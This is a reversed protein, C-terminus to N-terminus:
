CQGSCPFCLGGGPVPEGQPAIPSSLPCKLYKNKLQILWDYLTTYMALPEDPDLFCGGTLTQGTITATQPERGAWEVSLTPDNDVPPPCRWDDQDAMARQFEPRLPIELLAHYEPPSLEFQETRTEDSLWLIGPAAFGLSRWCREFRGCRPLELTLEVFDNADLDGDAPPRTVPVGTDPAGADTRGTGSRGGSAAADAKPADSSASDCGVVILAVVLVLSTGVSSAIKPEFWRMGLCHTM